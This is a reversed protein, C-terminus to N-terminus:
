NFLARPFRSQPGSVATVVQNHRYETTAQRSASASLPKLDGSIPMIIVENGFFRDLM